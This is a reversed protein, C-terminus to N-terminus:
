FPNTKDTQPDIRSNQVLNFGTQYTGFSILKQGSRLSLIFDKIKQVEIKFDEFIFEANAINIEDNTNFAEITIIFKEGPKAENTLIFNERNELFM